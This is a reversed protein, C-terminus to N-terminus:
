KAPESAVVDSAASRKPSRKRIIKSETKPKRDKPQIVKLHPPLKPMAARGTARPASLLYKGIELPWYRKRNARFYFGLPFGCAELRKLGTYDNDNILGVAILDAEAILRNYPLGAQVL